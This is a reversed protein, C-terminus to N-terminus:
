VIDPRSQFDLLFTGEPAKSESVAGRLGTNIVDYMASLYSDRLAACEEVYKATNREAEQCAKHITDWATKTM